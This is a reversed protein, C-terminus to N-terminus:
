AAAKRFLALSLNAVWRVTWDGMTQLRDDIKELLPACPELLLPGLFPVVRRALTIYLPMRREFVLGAALAMREYEAWSRFKLHREWGLIRYFRDSVLLWGGPKLHGALTAFATAFERDSTLCYLVDLAAIGDFKESAALPDARGVNAQLFRFRPFRTQLSEVSASTIDIGTLSEAGAREALGEFFGTGCGIDLLRSSQLRLGGAQLIRAVAREKSRYLHRNYDLGFGRHGSGHEDFHLRLREEWYSRVAEPAPESM